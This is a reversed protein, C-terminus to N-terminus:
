LETIQLVHANVEGSVQHADILEHIRAIYHQGHELDHLMLM